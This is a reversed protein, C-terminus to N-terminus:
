GDVTGLNKQIVPIESCAVALAMLWDTDLNTDNRQYTTMEDALEIIYPSTLLGADIVAQLHDLIKDKNGGRFDVPQAIDMLMEYLTDGVGTSDLFVESNSEYNADRIEKEISSHAMEGGPQMNFNERGKETWPLQFSWHKTIRHPLETKNIRIGVTSDSKAGRRGRALDWGEIYKKGTDIGNEIDLDNNFLKEVRSAFMMESTDIFKGKVVQDVKSKSWSSCLYDFLKHDIYPNDYSTGGQVHGGKRKIDTMVRYYANRGKPTAYFDLQSDRWKRTRPLLIKERIFELHAELAIEDASIYGYEKGEISEAKRKTTKFETVAGNKYRLQAYPHKVIGKTTDCFWNGLIPSHNILGSIRELVLESLEQTIAVNLTKYKDGDLYHQLVCRLHKKAIVDTKGWGNGPHLLNERHVSKRLWADQSPHSKYDLVLDDFASWDRKEQIQKLAFAIINFIQQNMYLIHYILFPIFDFLSNTKPAWIGGKPGIWKPM